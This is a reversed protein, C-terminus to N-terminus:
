YEDGDDDDGDCGEDEAYVVDEDYVLRDDDAPEANATGHLASRVHVCPRTM